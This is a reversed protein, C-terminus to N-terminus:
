NQLHQEEENNSISQDLSDSITTQTMRPIHKFVENVEYSVNSYIGTNDDRKQKIRLRAEIGDGPAITISHAFFDSYFSQDKIPASIKVGRWMFEWKRSSNELIAKFIRLEVIEEIIREKADETNTAAYIQNLKERPIMVEPKPSEISPALGLGSINSDEGIAKLTKSINDQFKQSKAVERTADYIERPVVVREDKTEIIVEDTNIIVKVDNDLSLTREYIYNAAISIVVAVLTQNSFLNRSEKYFAKLRTRFSGSSLAEVVIEIEYGPNILSNAEKAADAFSVLASALTYANIKHGQTDFYLVVTDKFESIRVVKM